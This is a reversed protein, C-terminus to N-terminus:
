WKVKEPCPRTLLNARHCSCDGCVRCAVDTPNTSLEGRPELVHSQDFLRISVGVGGSDEFCTGVGVQLPVDKTRDVVPVDQGANRLGGPVIIDHKGM